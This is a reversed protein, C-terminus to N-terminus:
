SVQHDSLRENLWEVIEGTSPDLGGWFSLPERLVFAGGAARGPVLTVGAVSRIGSSSGSM